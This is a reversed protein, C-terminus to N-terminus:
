KMLVMQEFEQWFKNSPYRSYYLYKGEFDELYIDSIIVDYNKVQFDNYLINIYDINIKYQNEYKDKLISEFIESYINNESYYLLIRISESQNMGFYDKRVEDIITLFFICFEYKLSERDTLFLASSAILQYLFSSKELNIEALKKYNIDFDRLIVQNIPGITVLQNTLYKIYREQKNLPICLGYKRLYCKLIDSIKHEKDDNLMYGKKLYLIEEIYEIPIINAILYPSFTVNYTSEIFNVFPKKQVLTNYIIMIETKIEGDLQELDDHLYYHKSVRNLAILLYTDIVLSEHRTHYDRYNKEFFLHVENFIIQNERLVEYDDMELLLVRFFHRVIRERGVIEYYDNYIIKISLEEDAFYQNIQNVKYLVTSKTVYLYESIETLNYQHFFILILLQLNTSDNLIRKSILISNQRYNSNLRISNGKIVIEYSDTLTNIEEIYKKLTVITTDLFKVVEETAEIGGNAELYYMLDIKKSINNEIFM